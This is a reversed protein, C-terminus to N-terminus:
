LLTNFYKEMLGIVVMAVVIMLLFKFLDHMNNM